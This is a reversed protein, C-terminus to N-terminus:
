HPQLKIVREQENKQKVNKRFNKKLLHAVYSLEFPLLFAAYELREIQYCTCSKERGKHSQVSPAYYVWLCGALNQNELVCFPHAISPFHMGIRKWFGM